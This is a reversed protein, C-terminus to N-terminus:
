CCTEQPFFHLGHLTFHCFTVFIFCSYVRGRNIYVAGCLQLTDDLLPSATWLLKTINTHAHTHVYHCVQLCFKSYEIIVNACGSCLRFAISVRARARARVCAYVTADRFSLAGASFSLYLMLPHPLPSSTTTNHPPPPLPPSPQQTPIFCSAPTHCQSSPWVCVTRQTRRYSKLKLKLKAVKM